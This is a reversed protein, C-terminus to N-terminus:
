CTTQLGVPMMLAPLTVRFETGQGVRSHCSLTGKHIETIIQHSVSLGLGTGEGVPKTTFFPDFIRGKIEEPIGWGNDKISILIQQQSAPDQQVSTTLWIRRPQDELGAGFRGQDANELADLANTLIDLFVQNLQRPSCYVFPIEGYSKIVEVKPKDLSGSIRNQLIMLVAELGNHIDVVKFDSENLRSFSGFSNVIECVRQSGIQMSSVIKPMDQQLFDLDMLETMAQIRENPQPYEQRYLHILSLLDNSYQDLHSLNGRIFTMPNNIEHALGAAMHGLSSLKEAQVLKTQADQLDRLAKKLRQNQKVLEQENAQREIEGASRAAFIKLIAEQDDYSRTLPQTDMAALHGLITGRSDHIAIGLYSEAGLEVLDLDKPFRAQINDKYVKLGTEVVVGCPTGALEYEFNPGFDDGAWFALVQGRPNEDFIFKVILGYKVGLSEALYRACSRFFEEGVQSAIGEVILPLDNKWHHSKLVDAQPSMEEPSHPTVNM